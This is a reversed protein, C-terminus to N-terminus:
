KLELYITHNFIHDEGNETDLSKFTETKILLYKHWLNDSNDDSVPDDWTLDIHFWEENLYVANWVHTASAVKYNKIGFKNLFIAMADAYGSCIAYGEFFLGYASNSNYQSTGNNNKEQDYKTNNIIYDHVTRIKAEDDMDPTIIEAIITDVKHNIAAIEAEKYLHGIHLTVEGNEYYTTKINYYNNFPHAYNNIHTLLINDGSIKKVDNICESYEEPCFFTFRKWGNNIVSYFINKLENYSYPKYTVSPNVFMFNDTKKYENTSTIVVKNDKELLDAIKSSIFDLKFIVVVIILLLIGPLIFKKM